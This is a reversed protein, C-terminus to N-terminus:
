RHNLPRHDLDFLVGKDKVPVSCVCSANAEIIGRGGQDGTLKALHSFWHRSFLVPHGELGNFNPICIGKPQHAQALLKLTKPEVYPMDALMVMLGAYGNARAKAAAAALSYGMGDESHKSYLISLREHGMWRGLLGELILEDEPKLVVLTPMGLSLPKALVHQLLPTNEFEFLRKDGGFRRSKGAALVTALITSSLSM